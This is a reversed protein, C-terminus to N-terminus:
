TTDRFDVFGPALFVKLFYVQVNKSFLMCIVLFTTILFIYLRNKFTKLRIWSMNIGLFKPALYCKDM